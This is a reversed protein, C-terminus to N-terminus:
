SKKSKARTNTTASSPTNKKIILTPEKEKIFAWGMSRVLPYYLHRSSMKKEAMADNFAADAQARTLPAGNSLGHLLADHILTPKLNKVTTKGVTMGDWAYGPFITVKRGDVNIVKKKNWPYYGTWYGLNAKKNPSYWTVTKTTEFLEKGDQTKTKKYWDHVTDEYFLINQSCSCLLAAALVAGSM